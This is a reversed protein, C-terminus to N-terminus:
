FTHKEYCKEVFGVFLPHPSTLTSKFEGHFQTGMFFPHLSEELEMIEVLKSDPNRGTVKFGSKQMKEVYLENCEYKHRHRENTTKKGYLKHSQSDKVLECEYDGLRMMGFNKLTRRDLKLNEMYHIVPDATNKDFETSNADKLNCINRCFEIVMLQMGLCVGLTPIKNERVYQICKIKSEIGRSDFGGAIVLGDLDCLYKEVDKSKDVEDTLIWHIKIKVNNAVGAHYLTEKLSLYAENCNNYKGLIGINIQPLDASIYKEVLERYKHIRCGNRKLRLKDTILDDIHRNYFEIPVQYVTEVDPALFISEKPINTLDSIKDLIKNPVKKDCRCLLIDAQVCFSNLSRVSNQLPKTKWEQITGVWLIPAVVVILIDNALKQKFQRIAELYPAAEIDGITGGIECFVIEVDKGLDQIREIIKNTLHPVIQVNQGLYKGEEQEKILEKYLTGSTCINKDTVDIGAIRYYSGLDLDTQDSTRTVWCEGHIAPSQLSCDSDIYPDFKICQVTHGKQKMLFALSATSIGKGTGSYVGGLVIVYKCM